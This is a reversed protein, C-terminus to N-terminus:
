APSPCHPHKLPDSSGQLSPSGGFTELMPCLHHAVAVLAKAGPSALEKDARDGVHSVALSVALGLCLGTDELTALWAPFRWCSPHGARALNLGTDELDSTRVWGARPSGSTGGQPRSGRRETYDLPQQTKLAAALM